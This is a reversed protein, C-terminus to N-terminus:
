CDLHPQLCNAQLVTLELISPAFPLLKGKTMAGASRPRAVPPVNSGERHWPTQKQKDKEQAISDKIASEEKNFAQQNAEETAHPKGQNSRRSSSVHLGRYQLPDYSRSQSHIQRILPASKSRWPKPALLTRLTLLASFVSSQMDPLVGCYWLRSPLSDFANELQYGLFYLSAESPRSIWHGSVPNVRCPQNAGKRPM